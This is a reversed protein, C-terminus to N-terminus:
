DEQRGARAAGEQTEYILTGTPVSQWATRGERLGTNRGLNEQAM